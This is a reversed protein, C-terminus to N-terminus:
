KGEKLGQYTDYIKQQRDSEATWRKVEIEYGKKRNLWTSEESAIGRIAKITEGEQGRLETERNKWATKEDQTSKLQDNYNAIIAQRQEQNKKIQDILGQLQEIQKTEAAIKDEEIKIHQQIDKEQIMTKKLSDNNKLIENSVATKQQVAANKAKGIESVNSNVIGLNKDYENKNSKSNEFNTKIKDLGQQVQYPEAFAMTSLLLLSTTLITKM